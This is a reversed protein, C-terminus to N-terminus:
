RVRRVKTRARGWAGSGPWFRKRRATIFQPAGAGPMFVATRAAIRRPISLPWIMSPMALPKSPSSRRRLAALHLPHAHITPRGHASRLQPGVAFTGLPRSRRHWRGCSRFTRCGRIRIIPPQGPILARVLEKAFAFIERGEVDRDIQRGADILLLRGPDSKLM